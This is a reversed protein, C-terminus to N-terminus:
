SLSALLEGRIRAVRELLAMRALSPPKNDEHLEAAIIAASLMDDIRSRWDREKGNLARLVESIPVM